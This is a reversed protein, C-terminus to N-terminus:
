IQYRAGAATCKVVISHSSEPGARTVAQICLADGTYTVATNSLRMM